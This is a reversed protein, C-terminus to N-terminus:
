PNLAMINQLGKLTIAGQYSVFGQFYRFIIGIHVFSM